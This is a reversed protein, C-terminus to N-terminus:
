RLKEMQFIFSVIADGRVPKSHVHPLNGATWQSFSHALCVDAKLATVAMTLVM